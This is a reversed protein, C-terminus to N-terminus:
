KEEFLWQKGEALLTAMDKGYVENLAQLTKKRSLRLGKTVNSLEILRELGYTEFLSRFFWGSARHYRISGLDYNETLCFEEFDDYEIPLLDVVSAPKKRHDDSTLLFKAGMEAVGDQLFSRPPFMFAGGLRLDCLAHTLEHAVPEYKHLSKGPTSIIRITRTLPDYIHNSPAVIGLRLDSIFQHAQHRLSMGWSDWYIVKRLPLPEVVIGSEECLIQWVGNVMHRVRDARGQNPDRGHASQVFVQYQDAGIPFREAAEVISLPLESYSSPIERPAWELKTQM